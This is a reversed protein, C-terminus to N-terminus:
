RVRVPPWGCSGVARSNLFGTRGLPFIVFGKTQRLSKM